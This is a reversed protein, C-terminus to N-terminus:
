IKHFIITNIIIKNDGVKKREDLIATMQQIVFRSDEQYTASEVPIKFIMDEYKMMAGWKFVFVKNYKIVNIRYM